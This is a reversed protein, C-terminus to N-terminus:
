LVVYLVMARRRIPPLGVSAAVEECVSGRPLNPGSCCYTQRHIRRQTRVGSPRRMRLKPRPDRRTADIRSGCAAFAREHHLGALRRGWLIPEFEVVMSVSPSFRLQARASRRRPMPVSRASVGKLSKKAYTKPKKVGAPSSPV